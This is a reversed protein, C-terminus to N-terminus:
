QLMVAFGVTTIAMARMETLAIVTEARGHRHFWLM